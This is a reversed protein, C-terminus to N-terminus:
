ATLYFVEQAKQAKIKACFLRCPFVACKPTMQGKGRCNTPDHSKTQLGWIPLLRKIIHHSGFSCSTRPSAVHIQFFALPAPFSQSSQSDGCHFPALKPAQGWNLLSMEDKTNKVTEWMWKRLRLQGMGLRVQCIEIWEETGAWFSGRPLAHRSKGTARAARNGTNGFLKHPCHVKHTTFIQLNTQSQAQLEMTM